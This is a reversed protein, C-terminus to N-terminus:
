LRSLVFSRAVEVGKAVDSHEVIELGGKLEPGGHGGDAWIHCLWSSFSRISTLGGPAGDRDQVDAGHVALGIV